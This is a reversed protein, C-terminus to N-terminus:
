DRQVAWVVRIMYWFMLAMTAFLALAAAVHQDTRYHHLVESTHYLAYGAALAVMAVSFLLGLQFGFILSGVILLLAALGALYLVSRLFSFDAGTAFVILTLGGFLVVTALAAPGIIDVGFAREYHSVVWILPTFIVSEAVTYLILGAYQTALSTTSQAWREAIWSVALFGGLMLMWTWPNVVVMETIKEGLPLNVLLSVLAVFGLVAAGLHIYTRRIFDARQRAEALVAPVDSTGYAYFDEQYSM